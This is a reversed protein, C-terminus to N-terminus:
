SPCDHPLYNVNLTGSMSATLLRYEAGADVGRRAYLTPELTLDQQPAINWYWPVTVIAGSRSSSGVTPFLFGTQRADSLPFSIYPVYLVPV